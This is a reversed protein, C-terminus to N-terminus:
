LWSYQKIKASFANHCVRFEITWDNNFDNEYRVVFLTSPDSNYFQLKASKHKKKLIM